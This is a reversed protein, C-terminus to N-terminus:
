PVTAYDLTDPIERLKSTDLQPGSLNFAMQNDVKIIATSLKYLERPGNEVSKKIPKGHEPFRSCTPGIKTGADGRCQYVAEITKNIFKM